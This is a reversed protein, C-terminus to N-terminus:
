FKKTSHSFPTQIFKDKESTPKKNMHLMKVYNKYKKKGKKIQNKELQNKCDM